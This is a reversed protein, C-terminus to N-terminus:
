QTAAQAHGVTVHRDWTLIPCVARISSPWRAPPYPVLAVPECARRRLSDFLADWEEARGRGLTLRDGGIGFDSLILVRSGRAPPRYTRWTWRAEGGTGRHPADAFFQVDTAGHGVVARVAAILHAQDRRFPQMTEGVDVLIQAGFRLTRQGLRPITRLTRGEAIAAVASAVDVPGDDTMRSLLYQLIATTSRPALLSQYPRRHVHGLGAWRALVTGHALTATIPETAVPELPSGGGLGASDPTPVAPASPVTAPEPTAPATASALAVHESSQQRTEADVVAFGLARAIAAFAAPNPAGLTEQARIIDAWWIDGPM